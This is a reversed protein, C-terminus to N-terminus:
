GSPRTTVGRGSANTRQRVARCAGACLRWRKARIWEVAFGFEFEDAAMTAARNDMQWGQAARKGIVGFVQATDLGVRQASTSAKPSRRSSGAICIQNGMKTLQGAGAPEM